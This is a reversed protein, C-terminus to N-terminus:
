YSVMKCVFNIMIYLLGLLASLPLRNRLILKVLKNRFVTNVHFAFVM